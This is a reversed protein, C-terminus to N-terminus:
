GRLNCNALSKIKVNCNSSKCGGIKPLSLFLNELTQVTTYHHLARQLSGSKCWLNLGATHNLCARRVEHCSTILEVLSVFKHVKAKSLESFPPICSPIAIKGVPRPVRIGPGIPVPMPTINQRHARGGSVRSCRLCSTPITKQGHTIYIRGPIYTHALKPGDRIGRVGKKKQGNPGSIYVLFGLRNWDGRRNGM